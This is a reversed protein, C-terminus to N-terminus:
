EAPARAALARELEKEVANLPRTFRALLDYLVPTVFLTLLSAIGLGGIVVIGIAARSEAGAGTALVLPLAGLMTALVTMVIPRLRLASAELVADRITLGEARLQNAFEVILIGNKAMLGILLIVGVQSYINLSNGTLWLSLLAGSVALPVSLMIILPHIFSEFQAALVLYVILLALAFTIAVGGSTELFQRSQGSFGLSAEPPLTEAAVEEIFDIASGLDYGEALSASITISPLRDYRRLAPAAAGEELGVLASLPVLEGSGDARVFINALDTPTRRDDARAQVIVPYERGRDIYSTIERSALMTQLTKGVTEVGIGLDDAKARDITVDFQPQNREFDTEVNRLGPNQEARRVIADSWEQISDYDPGGIVVQLPTRSGRVGLGAPSSAGVRAGPLASLEPYLAGTLQQPTQERAEWDALRAVVFARHGNGRMGVIAFLRDAVGSERLPRLMAEVRRAEADTYAVTSGQPATISVSFVGRDEPPVLEKPLVEYLAVSAGSIVLAVLLVLLPAELTRGLLSRYGRICAALGREVLRAARGRAEGGQLLKACLAPCLSLAVLMSIAVSAALVFGFEIFLRGIEGELFSLPIFVAILTLSTAIVAFTVQRTGLVSALLPSEGLEIRRQINELVVIADDVVIGIALILALLTLVNISFGLAYIGIFSGIVAVPITVAPVLTARASALFAFIVLVVLVVAIGLARVVEHISENIFVADDSSITIEMGDPLTPRILQIQDRVRNSIAITNAQSQRLVGLGVAERADARVITDDDEVGRVVEAVDGLRIPYGDVRDIVIDRFQEVRSLRSQARVTFQRATSELEGAPLEVNNRRLASEIDDVTLNRAAMARRDLWIRIAFRRQGYVEVQSVGDLTALRDVVFREVYDTIEAPSMRDSTIAIRMVPDDDDDSKTIQPEEVEDPLDGRVRAVADRVDNAAEDINRHPEFEIATRGRGLRSQSSITKVGAIGAVAGEIVETIDTDIIEPAAGAYLTAVSVTAADVDPLERIPLRMLSAVGLVILLLSLVAAFVPRKICFDSIM